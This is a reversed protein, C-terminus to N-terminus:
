RSPLYAFRRREIMRMTSNLVIGIAMLTFIGVFMPATQYLNASNSVVFGIGRNSSVLEAIFMMIIARGIALRIGVLIHPAASPLFVRRFLQGPTARYSRAMEVLRPDTNEVGGQSSIMIQMITGVFILAVKSALGIGFWLTLLPFFAVTPTAYLAIVYPEGVYRFFRFQGLAVGVPIGVVLALGFGWLIEEASAWLQSYITHKVIYMQFFADWIASPKSSFAPNVWNKDAFLQWSALVIALSAVGLLLAPRRRWRSSSTPAPPVLNEIELAERALETVM